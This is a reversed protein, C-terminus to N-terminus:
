LVIQSLDTLEMIREASPESETGPGGGAEPVASPGGADGGTPLQEAYPDSAAANGFTLGTKQQVDAVTTQFARYPGFMFEDLTAGVGGGDEPKPLEQTLLYATASLTGDAKRTAVVKWFLLPVAVTDQVPDHPDLVPGNIVSVKLDFLDANTLIYDELGAWLERGRNFLKNQPACNTYHFTDLDAREAEEITDGWVPDLRRTLHGKDFGTKHYIAGATQADHPIRTDHEWVDDGRPALTVKRTQDINVASYIALKRSASIVLSFHEYPIVMTSAGGLEISLADALVAPSLSPLPM